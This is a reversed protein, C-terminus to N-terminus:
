LNFKSNVLQDVSFIDDLKTETLPLTFVLLALFYEFFFFIIKLIYIYIYIYECSVEGEQLLKTRATSTRAM